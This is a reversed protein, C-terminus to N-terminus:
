FARVPAKTTAVDFFQRFEEFAQKEMQSNMQKLVM